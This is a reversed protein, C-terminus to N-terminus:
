PTPPAVAFTVLSWELAEAHREAGVTTFGHHMAILDLQPVLTTLVTYTATTAGVAAVAALATDIRGAQYGAVFPDDAYPGGHSQCAVFPFALEMGETQPQDMPDTM